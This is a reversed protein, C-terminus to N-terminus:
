KTGRLILKDVLGWLLTAHTGNKYDSGHKRVGKVADLVARELDLQEMCGDPCVKDKGCYYCSAQHIPM